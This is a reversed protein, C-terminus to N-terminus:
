HGGYRRLIARVEGLYSEGFLNLHNLLHYLNYIDFRERWGSELPRMEQYAQYFSEAFAGFLATMALEAEAWGYYVAPDIIAPAGHRDSIANGSWLDGHLLSAPQQPVLQPLRAALAQAQREEASGLLGRRRALSVQFLLRREAFFVYGDENWDNPQATSGIYNSHEFGFRPQTRLHLAALERGFQQWYDARRPAPELDELLIFDRGFCFVAPTRPGAGAALAELGQAEREFMDFPASLNSKVFFRDGSSTKLRAGHNICGGGVAQANIVEGFGNEKLWSKVASPIM